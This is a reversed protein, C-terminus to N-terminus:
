LREDYAENEPTNGAVKCKVINTRGVDARSAVHM